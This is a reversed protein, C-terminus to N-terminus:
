PPTSCSNMFTTAWTTTCPSTAGAERLPTKQSILYAWRAFKNLVTAWGGEMGDMVELNQLFLRFLMVLDDTEWDGAAYSDAM